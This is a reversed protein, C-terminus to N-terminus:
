GKGGKAAGTRMKVVLVNCPSHTVVHSAVSGLLLKTLGSRGHSGVVVLDAHDSEAALVLAERPDGRVVRAETEIGAERLERETRAAVEEHFKVQEDLWEAGSSAAPMDVMAYAGVPIRAVSLVIVRTGAPWKMTRVYDVAARSHPSDDVGLVIKM